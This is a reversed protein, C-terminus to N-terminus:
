AEMLRSILRRAWMMEKSSPDVHLAHAILGELHELYHARLEGKYALHSGLGYRKIYYLEKRIHRRFERRTNLRDNVVIGTVEQCQHSYMARTKKENLVLGETRLVKRVFKIVEGPDLKGSLTIDDAYRTYRLRKSRAFGGLRQDIRRAYLNSLMPSTPAGQPLCDDLTCLRGLLSAVKQSYGISRFIGYVRHRQISPFFDTIDLSLVVSQRRHFRANERIGRGAVFGKAYRSVPLVSLLHDHIWRQIEKLSPLPEDITRVGGSKKRIQFRRYFMDPALCCLSLYRQDYGVLRSFHDLDFIIPLGRDVLPKAYELCAEVYKESRNARDALERFEVSYRKWVVSPIPAM